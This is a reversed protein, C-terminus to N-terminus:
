NAQISLGNIVWDCKKNINVPNEAITLMAYTEEVVPILLPISFGSEETPKVKQEKMAVLDGQSNFISFVLSLDNTCKEVTKLEGVIQSKGLQPDLYLLSYSIPESQADHFIQINYIQDSIQEIKLRSNASGHTILWNLQGGPRTETYQEMLRLTQITTSLSTENIRKFIKVTVGQELLFEEPIQVFDQAIAIKKTFIDVVSRVVDHEEVRLHYQPPTAIVVYKSSLLRELPYPDRSDAFPTWQIISLGKSFWFSNATYAMLDEHLARDVHWLLDSSVISSSAAVYILDDPESIERLHTVLKSLAEEDSREFPPNNNAFLKWLNTNWLVPGIETKLLINVPMLSIFMNLFMYLSFILIAIKRWVKNKLTEWVTWAFASLGLIIWPTFHMSYHFGLQKVILIWQLTLLIFFLYIFRAVSRNIVHNLVGSIIGLIALIICIWGYYGRYYQISVNIPQEYSAYLETFNTSIVRVIFPLGFLSLLAFTTFGLLAIRFIRDSLNRNKERDQRKLSEIFDWLSEFIIAAFFAIGSYVFHRRFLIAFALCFGILPFQWKKQLKQDRLYVHVAAVTFLSAAIDPYGRLMPLWAAPTLVSIYATSWFVARPHSDILQNAIKGLLLTLPMFYLIALSLIYVVRSNGFSLIFPISLLTHYDSYDRYTSEWITKVAEFWQNIPLERFYIAKHTAMDQYQAYDWYQFFTEQSVYAVTLLAITLGLIVMFVCNILLNRKYTKSHIM